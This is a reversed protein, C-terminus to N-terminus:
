RFTYQSPVSYQASFNSLKPLSPMTFANFGQSSPASFIGSYNSFNPSMGLDMNIANSFSTSSSNTVNGADPAKMSKFAGIGSVAAGLLGLALQGRGDTLQPKPPAVGLVPALAVESWAKNNAGRLEQRTQENKRIMANRASALNAAVTANNRGYAALMAQDMKKVSRGTRGTAAISGRGQILEALAGQQQFAASQYAENLKTQEAAYARGAASYNEDKQNFYDVRKHGWVSLRNMWDHKRQALAYKYQEIAAKNNAQTQQFGSIAGFAGQAASLVGLVPACV